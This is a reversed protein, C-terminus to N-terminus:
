CFYLLLAAILCPWCCVCLVCALSLLWLYQWVSSEVEESVCPYEVSNATFVVVGSELFITADKCCLVKTEKDVNIENCASALM